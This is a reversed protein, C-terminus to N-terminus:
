DILSGLAQLNEYSVGAESLEEATIGFLSITKAVREYNVSQKKLTKFTDSVADERTMYKTSGNTSNYLTRKKCKGM